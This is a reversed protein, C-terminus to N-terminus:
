VCPKKSIPQEPDPLLGFGRKSPPDGDEKERQPAAVGWLGMPAEPPQYGPEQPDLPDKSLLISIAPVTRHVTVEPTGGERNEWVERVSKYRVKTLQHLGGLRRKLIEACTITKTVARGSGVFVVQRLGSQEAGEGQMRAMAFGMLNRIKSGEKVRMELVGEPLGPFPSPSTEETRCVRKFTGQGPKPPSSPLVQSSLPAPTPQSGLVECGSPPQASYTKGQFLRFMDPVVGVEM